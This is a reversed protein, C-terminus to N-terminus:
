IVNIISHHVYSFSSLVAHVSVFKGRHLFMAEANCVRHIHHFAEALELARKLLTMYSFSPRRLLKKPLTADARIRNKDLITHLTGGSMYELIIFRRPGNGSGLVKIINPHNLRVLIAHEQDFERNVLPSEAVEEKIMKIIITEGKWSALYINANSGDTLHRIDTFDDFTLGGVPVPQIIPVRAIPYSFKYPPDWVPIHKPLMAEAAEGALRNSKTTKSRFIGRKSGNEDPASGHFSGRTDGSESNNLSADLEYSANRRMGSNSSVSKGTLTSSMRRVLSPRAPPPTPPHVSDEINTLVMNMHKKDLDSSPNPEPPLPTFEQVIGDQSNNGITIVADEDFGFAACLIAYTLGEVFKTKTAQPKIAKTSLATLFLRTGGINGEKLLYSMESTIPLSFEDNAEYPEDHVRWYHNTTSDRSLECLKMAQKRDTVEPWFGTALTPFRKKIDEQAFSYICHMKSQEPSGRDIKSESNRPSRPTMPDEELWLQILEFGLVLSTFSLSSELAESTQNRLYTSM